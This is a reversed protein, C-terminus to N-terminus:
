KPVEATVTSSPENFIVEQVLDALNERTATLSQQGSKTLEYYRRIRGRVITTRSRLLKARELSHLLPYLSGPSIRYGLQELTKSLLGGYTEGQGAKYLIFLKVMGHIFSQSLQEVEREGAPKSIHRKKVMGSHIYVSLYAKKIFSFDIRHSLQTVPTWQGPLGCSLVQGRASSDPPM